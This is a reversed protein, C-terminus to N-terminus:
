CKDRIWETASNNGKLSAEQWDLCAKNKDNKFFYAWGRTAYFTGNSIKWYNPQKKSIMNLDLIAGSIDKIDIKYLARYYYADWFKPHLEIAKNIDSIASYPDKKRNFKEVGSDLFSYAKNIFTGCSEAGIPGLFVEKVKENGLSAASMADKCSGKMDGAFYKSGAREFFAEGDRPNIEIVKSFDKIAAAYDKLSKFSIGRNYYTYEDGDNNDIVKSFDSIAGLYDKLILKMLGRNYYANFDQPYIEIAKSFDKIAGSYDKNKFKENGKNFYFDASEANVKKSFSIMYGATSFAVSTKILLPQWFPILSLIAGIFATRKKM